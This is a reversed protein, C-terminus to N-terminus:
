GRRGAGPLRGDARPHCTRQPCYNNGGCGQTIGADRIAMIYPAALSDPAVDAFGSAVAARPLTACLVLTLIGRLLWAIRGPALVVQGM